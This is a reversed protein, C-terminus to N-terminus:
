CFPWGDFVVKERGAKQPEAECEVRLARGGTPPRERVAEPGSGRKRDPRQRSRRARRGQGGEESREDPPRESRRSAGVTRIGDVPGSEPERERTASAEHESRETRRSGARKGQAAMTAARRREGKLEKAGVRREPPQRRRRQAQKAPVFSLRRSVGDATFVSSCIWVLKLLTDTNKWARAGTVGARYQNRAFANGTHKARGAQRWFLSFSGCPEGSTKGGQVGGM